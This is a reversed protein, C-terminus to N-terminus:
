RDGETLAHTSIDIFLVLGFCITDGETLAHTSIGQDTGPRGQSEM